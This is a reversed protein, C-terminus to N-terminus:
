GVEGQDSDGRSELWSVLDGLVKARELENFVEHRLEPYEIWTPESVGLRDRFARNADNSVLREDGAILFLTPVTISAASSLVLAQTRLTETFWRATGIGPM